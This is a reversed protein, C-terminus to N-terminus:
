EVEFINGWDYKKEEVIVHEGKTIKFNPKRMITVPVMVATGKKRFNQKLVFVVNIGTSQSSIVFELENRNLQNANKGRPKATNNKVNEVDTKFQKQYKKFFKNFVFTLECTTIQKGNRTHNLQDRIFHTSFEFETGFFKMLANRWAQTFQNAQQDNVPGTPEPCESASQAVESLLQKLTKM